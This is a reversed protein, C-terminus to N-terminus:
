GARGRCWGSTNAAVEFGAYSRSEAASGRGLLCAYVAKPVALESVPHLVTKVRETFSGTV